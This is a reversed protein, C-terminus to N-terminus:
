REEALIILRSKADDTCTTLSIERKGQTDRELYTSDEPTTIYTKYVVYTVKKGELDTIYIKDGEEINKNNSFFTGNRYNHGAITTNGVKNLGVGDYIGVAVEIAAKSANQLIPCKLNTKPIEITGVEPFGQYTKTKKTETSNQVNEGIQNEISANPVIPTVNTNTNNDEIVENENLENLESQFNNFEEEARIQRKNDRSISIGVYTVVSIIALIGIILLITLVKSYKSEFM